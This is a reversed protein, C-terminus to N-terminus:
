RDLDRHVVQVVPAPGIEDDSSSLALVWKARGKSPKAAPAFRVIGDHPRSPRPQRLSPPMARPGAASAEGFCPAQNERLMRM